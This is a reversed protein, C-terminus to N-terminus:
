APAAAPLKVDFEAAIEALTDRMFQHAPTGEIGEPANENLKKHVSQFLVEVQKPKLTGGDILASILAMLLLGTLADSAGAKQALVNAYEAIERTNLAM